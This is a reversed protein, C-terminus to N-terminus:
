AILSNSFLEYFLNFSHSNVQVDVPISVFVLYNSNRERPLSARLCLSAAQCTVFHFSVCRYKERFRWCCNGIPLKIPMRYPERSAFSRRSSLAAVRARVGRTAIVANCNAAETLTCIPGRHWRCRNGRRRSFRPSADPSSYYNSGSVSFSRDCPTFNLKGEDNDFEFKWRSSSFTQEM